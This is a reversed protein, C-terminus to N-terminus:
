AESHSLIANRPNTDEPTTLSTFVALWFAVQQGPQLSGFDIDESAFEGDEPPTGYDPSEGATTNEEPLDYDENIGPFGAPYPISPDYEAGTYTWEVTAPDEIIMKRANTYNQNTSIYIIYGEAGALESWNLKFAKYVTDTTISVEISGTTEGNENYATIRVYYVTSAVLVGGSVLEATVNYPCSLTTPCLAWKLLSYLDSIGIQNIAYSLSGSSRSTNNQIFFKKYSNDGAEISTLLIAGITTEGDSDQLRGRM